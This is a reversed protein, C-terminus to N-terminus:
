RKKKSHCKSSIRKQFHPERHRQESHDRKFTPIQGSETDSVRGQEYLTELELQIKSVGFGRRNSISRRESVM